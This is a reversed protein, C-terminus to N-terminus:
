IQWADTTINGIRVTNISIVLDILYHKGPLMTFRSIDIDRKYTRARIGTTVRYVIKLTMDGSEIDQPILMLSKDSDNLQAKSLSPSIDLGIPTSILEIGPPQHSHFTPSELKEWISSQTNDETFTYRMSNEVCNESYQLKLSTISVGQLGPFTRDIKGEFSIKSLIHNFAFSVKSDLDVEKKDKLIAM